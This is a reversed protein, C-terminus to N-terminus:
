VICVWFYLAMRLNSWYRLSRFTKILITLCIFYRGCLQSIRCSTRMLALLATNGVRVLYLYYIGTNQVTFIESLTIDYTTCSFFNISYHVVYMHNVPIYNVMIFHFKSGYPLVEDRSLTWFDNLQQETESSFTWTM